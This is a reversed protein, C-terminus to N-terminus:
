PRAWSSTFELKQKTEKASSNPVHNQDFSFGASKVSIQIQQLGAEVTVASGFLSTEGVTLKNEVILAFNKPATQKEQPATFSVPFM